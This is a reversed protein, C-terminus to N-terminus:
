RTCNFFNMLENFVEAHRGKSIIHHNGLPSDLFYDYGEPIHIKIQTRCLTSSVETEVIEGETVFYHELGEGNIKSITVPGPEFVGAIGIGIGSEFHTKLGFSSVMTTPVTCHAMVLGDPYIQSPNAMFSPANTILRNIMLTFMAPIDGECGAPIGEDNFRALALCGTTKLPALLDFCRLTFASLQHEAVMKKLALYVKLAEYIDERLPGEIYQADPLQAYAQLVEDQSIPELNKHVEELDIDTLRIGWKKRVDEYDTDSSILWDSPNGIVGIKTEKLKEAIDLQQLRKEIKNKISSETGHLLLSNRLGRRNVWYLIELSAPLSNHSNTAMLTVPKGARMLDPFLTKFKHETGGSQIFVIPLEVESIESISIEKVSFSQRLSDVISKKGAELQESEHINSSLSIIGIQM